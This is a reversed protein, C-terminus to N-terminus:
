PTLPTAPTKAFYEAAERECNEFWEQFEEPTMPIALPVYEAAQKKLDEVWARFEEPTREPFRAVIVPESPRGNHQQELIAQTFCRPLIEAGQERACAEHEADTFIYRM